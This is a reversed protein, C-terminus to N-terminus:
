SCKNLVASWGFRLGGGGLLATWRCGGMLLWANNERGNYEATYLVNIEM